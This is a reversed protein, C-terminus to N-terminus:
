NATRRRSDGGSSRSRPTTGPVERPTPFECGKRWGEDPPQRLEQTPSTTIHVGYNSGIEVESREGRRVELVTRSSSSQATPKKPKRAISAGGKPKPSSVVVRLRLGKSSSASRTTRM